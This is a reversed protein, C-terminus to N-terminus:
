SFRWSRSLEDFLFILKLVRGFNVATINACYCKGNM